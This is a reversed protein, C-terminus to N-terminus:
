RPDPRTYWAIEWDGMPRSVVRVHGDMWAVAAKGDHRIYERRHEPNTWQGEGIEPMQYPLDGNADHVAEYSDQFFITEAPNRVATLPEVLRRWGTQSEFVFPMKYIDPSFRPAGRMYAGDEVCNLGYATYIHGEDFTGDANAPDLVKAAPCSFIARENSIIERYFVGWYAENVPNSPSGHNTYVDVPDTAQQFRGPPEFWRSWNNRRPFPFDRNEAMYTHIATGIQNQHSLCVATKAQERAKQLSPLLISILLAIIAVVVLLEILTFASKPRTM